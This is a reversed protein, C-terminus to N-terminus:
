RVYGCTKSNLNVSKETQMMQSIELQEDLSLQFSKGWNPNSKAAARVCLDEDNELRCLTRSSTNRNRAVEFRIPSYRKQALFDLTKASANPHQAILWLVEDSEDRALLAINEASLGPNKAVFIRIWLNDDRVLESLEEASCFPDACLIRKESFSLGQILSM